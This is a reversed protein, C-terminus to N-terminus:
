VELLLYAALVYRDQWTVGCTHCDVEQYVASGDVEVSQGEIDFSDCAPCRTPRRLYEAQTKM